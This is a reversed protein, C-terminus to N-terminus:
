GNESKTASHTHDYDVLAVSPCVSLCVSLYISLRNDHKRSRLTLAVHMHKISRQFFKLLSYFCYSIFTFFAM